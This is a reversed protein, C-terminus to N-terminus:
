PAAQRSSVSTDHRFERYLSGPLVSWHWEISLGPPAAPEAGAGSPAWRAYADNFAANEAAREALM